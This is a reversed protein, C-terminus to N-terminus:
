GLADKIKRICQDQAVGGHEHRAYAEELETLARRIAAVIKPADEDEEAKAAREIEQERVAIDELKVAHERLVNAANFWQKSTTM